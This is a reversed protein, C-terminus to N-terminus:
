AAMIMKKHYEMSTLINLKQQVRKNTYYSMYKHIADM